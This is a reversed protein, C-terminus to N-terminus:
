NKKYYLKYWNVFEAIGNQLTVKPRFGTLAELLDINSSTEVVDGDQIGLFNKKSVIGLSNEIENIYDMLNITKSNGINIIRYPANDSISDISIETERKKKNSPIIYILKDIAEVLDKINPIGYLHSYSHAMVECSKKTAAYFSMQADCKQNEHFPIEKSNGYVSSTSAILLHETKFKKALELIHFTAILNSEM